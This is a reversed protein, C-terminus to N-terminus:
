FPSDFNLKKQHCNSEKVLVGGHFRYWYGTRYPIKYRFFLYVGGGEQPPPTGTKWFSPRYLGSVIGYPVTPVPVLIRM